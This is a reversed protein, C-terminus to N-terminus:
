RVGLALVVLPPARHRRVDLAPGLVPEEIDDSTAAARRRLVDRLDRSADGVIRRALDGGKRRAHAKGTELREHVPSRHVSAGGRTEYHNTLPGVDCTRCLETLQDFGIVELGGEGDCPALDLVARLD